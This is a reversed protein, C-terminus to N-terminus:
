IQMNVKEFEHINNKEVALLHYKKIFEKKQLIDSPVDFGMLKECKGNDIREIEFSIPNFESKSDQFFGKGIRTIGSKLNNFEMKGYGNGNLVGNVYEGDYIYVIIKKNLDCGVYKDHWNALINCNEDYVTGNLYLGMNENFGIETLCYTQKKAAEIIHKQIWFGKISNEFEHKKINSIVNTIGAIIVALAILLLFTIIWTNLQYQNALISIFYASSISILTLLFQEYNGKLKQNM